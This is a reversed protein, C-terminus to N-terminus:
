SGEQIQIQAVFRKFERGRHKYDDFMDFSSCGPSLLVCDGARAFSKATHVADSLTLVKSVPCFDKLDECIANATEGIAIVHKVKGEFSTKWETFRFGKDVGGAILVVPNKMALVAQVVADLNTGKSDDYYEVGDVSAVYEIRHPPKRFSDVAELFQGTTVGFDKVLLWAALLNESEHIGLDRYRLPLFYAIKERRKAIQKTTFFESEIKQGYTLFKSNSFLDGFEEIIKDYVYFIGSNKICDSLKQKAKAYEIMSSYRDLHDPTINTIIGVDFFSGNMTELQYSSLEAVLIEEPDSQLLYSTFALGVNGVAKAKLGANKLIHEVLLTITTKGNTGTIAIAKQHLYRFSFAAEGIIPISEREAKQCIPHSLAIGPSLIMEDIKKWDIDEMNFYLVLGRRELDPLNIKKQDYGCVSLGQKLLFEAAAKGSVGLGVVLKM